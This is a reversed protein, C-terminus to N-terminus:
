QQHRRFAAEIESRRIKGTETRPFSPLPLFHFSRVYRMVVREIRARLDDPARPTDVEVAVLLADVGGSNPMTLLVVDLVGDIQKIEDEIPAPPLKIGGINLMDDARGLVVLKGPEPVFGVDSTHYWGDVFTAATLVPDNWYGTAMTATRVRILGTEGQTKDQGAEDVIRVETGVCLTGIDDDGVYAITNVENCSYNSHIEAGLREAILDRLSQSTRAGIPEVLVTIGSPVGATQRVVAEAHGLIIPLWNVAGAELLTPAQEEAAFVVTGGAQLTTYVRTYIARIGLRYLCLLRPSQRVAAPLYARRQNVIRQQVEYSIPVAKQRGTSGSTRSIRVIQQMDPQRDLAQWDDTEPICPAPVAEPAVVVTQRYAQAPPSTLVLVACDPLVPDDDMRDAQTFATAIAGIVECALFLMLHLSRQPGIEVGVLMGSRLGAQDLFRVWGALDSALDRYSIRAGQEVLASADPLNRAHRAIAQATCAFPPQVPDTV